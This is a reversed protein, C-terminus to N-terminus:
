ITELRLILIKSRSSFSHRVSVRTVHNGSNSFQMVLVSIVKSLQEYNAKFKCIRMQEEPKGRVKDKKIVYRWYKNFTEKNSEPLKQRLVHKIYFMFVTSCPLWFWFVKESRNRIGACPNQQSKIKFRVRLVLNANKLGSIPCFCVKKAFARMESECAKEDLMPSDIPIISPLPM